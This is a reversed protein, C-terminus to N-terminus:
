SQAAVPEDYAENDNHPQVRPVHDHNDQGVPMRIDLVRLM